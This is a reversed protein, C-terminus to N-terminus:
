HYVAMFTKITVKLFRLSRIGLVVSYYLRFHSWKLLSCVFFAVVSVFVPDPINRRM